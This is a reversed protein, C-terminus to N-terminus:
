SSSSSSDEIKIGRSELWSLDLKWKQHSRKFWVAFAKNIQEDADKESLRNVKMFHNKALAYEAKGRTSAYGIHKVKHCEPCLAILRKLSQIGNKDDYDWVEHCEVPWKKGKGGCIECRYNAEIYCEKRITDWEEKSMLTRLNKFWSTKPVLEITLKM